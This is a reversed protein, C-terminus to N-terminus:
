WTSDEKAEVERKIARAREIDNQQADKDGGSLLLYLTEGRQCFYLRYGPGLHIRMESIGDVINWRCDGFNGERARKIRRNITHKGEYDKLKKLWDDFYDTKDIAYM